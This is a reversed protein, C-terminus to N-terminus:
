WIKDNWLPTMVSKYSTFPWLQLSSSGAVNAVGSNRVRKRARRKSPRGPFINPDAKLVELLWKILVFCCISTPPQGRFFILKDIPIIVNGIYPFFLFTGFWWGTYIPPHVDMKWRNQHEGLKQHTKSGPLFTAVCRKEHLALVDDSMCDGLMLGLRCPVQRQGFLSKRFPIVELTVFFVQPSQGWFLHNVVCGTEWACWPDVIIWAVSNRKGIKRDRLLSQFNQPFHRFVIHGHWQNSSLHFWNFCLLRYLSVNVLSWSLLAITLPWLVELEHCSICMPLNIWVMKFVFCSLM